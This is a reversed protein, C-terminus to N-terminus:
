EVDLKADLAKKAKELTKEETEGAVAVFLHLNYNHALFQPFGNEDVSPRVTIYHNRYLTTEM